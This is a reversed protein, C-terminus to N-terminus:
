MSTAFIQWALVLLSLIFSHINTHAMFQKIKILMVLAHTVRAWFYVMVAIQTVRNSPGKLHAVIVQGAFAGFQVVLNIHARNARRISAAFKSDDRLNM